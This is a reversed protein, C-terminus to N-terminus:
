SRKVPIATGGLFGLPAHSMTTATESNEQASQAMRLSAALRVPSPSDDNSNPFRCGLPSAHRATFKHFEYFECHDFRWVSLWRRKFGRAQDYTSNLEAFLVDDTHPPKCEITKFIDRGRQICLYLYQTEDAPAQPDDDKALPIATTQRADSSPTQHLSEFSQLSNQAATPSEPLYPKSDTRIIAQPPKRLDQKLSTNLAVSSHIIRPSTRKSLLRGFSLFHCFPRLIRSSGSQDNQREMAATSPVPAPELFAPASDFATQLRERAHQPVDLHRSTGCPSSWQLRCFGEEHMHVRPVLPSWNGGETTHDEVFAKLRDVLQLRFSHRETCTLLHIPVWSLEEVVIRIDEPHLMKGEEGIASDGVADEVRLRYPEHTSMLLRNMFSAYANSGLIFDRLPTFNVDTKGDEAEGVSHIPGTRADHTAPERPHTANAKSPEARGSHSALESHVVCERMVQAPLGRIWLAIAIGIQTPGRAEGMLEQGLMKILRRLRLRHKGIGIDPDKRATLNIPQTDVSYLLDPTLKTLLEDVPPLVGSLSALIAELSDPARDCADSDTDVSQGTEPTELSSSAAALRTLASAYDLGASTSSTAPAALDATELLRELIHMAPRAFHSVREVITWHGAGGPLRGPSVFYPPRLGGPLEQAATTRLRDQTASTGGVSKWLVSARDTGGRGGNEDGLVADRGLGDRGLGDRELGDRGVRPDRGTHIRDRMTFRGEPPELLGYSRLRARLTGQGEGGGGSGDDSTVLSMGVSRTQLDLTALSRLRDRDHQEVSRPTDFQPIPLLIAQANFSSAPTVHADAESGAGAIRM